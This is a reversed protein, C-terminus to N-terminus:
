GRAGEGPILAQSSILMGAKTPRAGDLKPSSILECAKLLPPLQHNLPAGPKARFDSKGSDNRAFRAGISDPRPLRLCMM